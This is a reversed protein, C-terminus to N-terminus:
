HALEEILDSAPRHRDIWHLETQSL